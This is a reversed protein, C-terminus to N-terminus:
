IPRQLAGTCSSNTAMRASRFGSIGIYVNSEFPNQILGNGVYPQILPGSVWVQTEPALACAPLFEAQLDSANVRNKHCEAVRLGM